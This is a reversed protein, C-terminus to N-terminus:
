NGGYDGMHDRWVSHPHPSSPILAGGQYSFEIWVSPGDIRIYDNRTNVATTGSYAVYTNALESTYKALVIAALSPELDNTYLKLANLVLKQKDTSLSGVSLGVKTAPFKGDQGPGLILDSFTAALKATAQESSSLGTLLAAFVQREQEVPQYSRNNATVAAMPEVGRFAPTVGILQGANFVFPQTYHHGTFHIEWLGTTSPTGLFAIYYYGAGFTTPKNITGLYDDAVLDGLMEDYGEDTVNLALLSSMLNQFAALQSSTLSGTNIGVRPVDGAPLNSWKQADTKSFSLQVAALQTSTLTAKFAESLTVIQALGSKSSVTTTASLFSTISSVTGSITTTSTGPTVTTTSTPNGPTVITDDNKKCGALISLLFLSIATVLIFRM